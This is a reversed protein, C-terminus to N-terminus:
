VTYITQGTQTKPGLHLVLHRLHAVFFRDAGKLIGVTQPEISRAVPNSGAFVLKPLQPRVAQRHGCLAFCVMGKSLHVRITSVVANQMWLGWVVM